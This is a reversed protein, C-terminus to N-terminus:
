KGWWVQIARHLEWGLCACSGMLVALVGLMFLLDTM